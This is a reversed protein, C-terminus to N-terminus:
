CLNVTHFCSLCTYCLKPNKVKLAEKGAQIVPGLVTETERTEGFMTPIQELLSVVHIVSFNNWSSSLLYTIVVRVRFFKFLPIPAGVTHKGYKFWFFNYQTLYFLWVEIICINSSTKCLHSHIAFCLMVFKQLFLCWWVVVRLGSM